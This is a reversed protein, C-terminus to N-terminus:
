IIFLNFIQGKIVAETDFSTHYVYGNTVYATDLGLIDKPGFDVFTGWDTASVKKLINRFLESGIVSAHPYPVSQGYQEMLWGSNSQFVMEKGGSGVAEMNVLYKVEQAWRHQTIFGHAAPQHAEEGGNFLLILPNKFPTPSKSLHRLVELMCVCGITDDAAGPSGVATDFHANILLARQKPLPPTAIEASPWHVYVVVNTLESYVNNIGGLFSEYFQGSVHQLEIEIEIGPIAEKKIEHLLWLLMNPAIIENEESGIMKAGFSTLEILNERAKSVDFNIDVDSPKTPLINSCFYDLFIILVILYLLFSPAKSDSTKPIDDPPADFMVRDRSEKFDRRSLTRDSESLMGGM